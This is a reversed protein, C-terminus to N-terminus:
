RKIEWCMLVLYVIGRVLLTELGVAVVAAAAVAAAVVAAAVVAAAAAVVAAVAAAAGVVAVGVVVAVQGAVAVVDRGSGASADTKCACTQRLFPYFVRCQEHFLTIINLHTLLNARTQM